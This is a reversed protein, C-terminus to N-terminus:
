VVIGYITFFEPYSTTMRATLPSVGVWGSGESSVCGRMGPPHNILSTLCWGVGTTIIFYLLLFLVCHVYRAHFIISHGILDIKVTLPALVRFTDMIYIFTVYCM